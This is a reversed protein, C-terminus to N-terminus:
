IRKTGIWLNLELLIEIYIDVNSKWTVAGEWKKDINFIMISM